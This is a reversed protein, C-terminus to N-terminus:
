LRKKFLFQVGKANEIIFFYSVIIKIIPNGRRGDWPYSFSKDVVGFKMPSTLLIANCKHLYPFVRKHVFVKDEEVM